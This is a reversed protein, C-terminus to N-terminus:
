NRIYGFWCYWGIQNRNSQLWREVNNLSKNGVIDSIQPKVTHPPSSLLSGSVNWQMVQMGSVLPREFQVMLCIAPGRNNASLVWFCGFISKIRPSARVKKISELRPKLFLVDCHLRSLTIIHSIFSIPRQKGSYVRTTYNIHSAKCPLHSTHTTPPTHDRTWYLEGWWWIGCLSQWWIYVTYVASGLMAGRCDWGAKININTLWTM